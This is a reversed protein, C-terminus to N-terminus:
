LSPHHHGGPREQPGTQLGEPDSISISLVRCAAKGGLSCTSPNRLSPNARPAPSDPGTYSHLVRRSSTLLELHMLDHKVHTLASTHSRPGAQQPNPERTQLPGHQTPCGQRSGSCMAEERPGQHKIFRDIGHHSSILM